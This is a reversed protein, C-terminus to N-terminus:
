ARPCGRKDCTEQSNNLGVQLQQLVVVWEFYMPCSRFLFCTGSELYNCKEMTKHAAVCTCVKWGCRKKENAFERGSLNPPYQLPSIVWLDLGVNSIFCVCVRLTSNRALLVYHLTIHIYQM